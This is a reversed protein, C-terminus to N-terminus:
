GFAIASAGLSLPVYAPLIATAPASLAHGLLAVEGELLELEAADDRPRLRLRVGKAGPDRIVLDSSLAYGVEVWCQRQLSASAGRAFGGLVRLEFDEAPDIVFAATM